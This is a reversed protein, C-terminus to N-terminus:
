GEGREIGLAKKLKVINERAFGLGPDISLAMNYMAIADEYRGLERLNSGISAYDIASAPNIKVASYLAEIAKEYRKTQYFCFGMLNYNAYENPDAKVAMELAAIAEDYRGLDKLCSGMYFYVRSLDEPAPNLALAERFNELAPETRGGGLDCLGQYFRVPASAEEIRDLNLRGREFEGLNVYSAALNFLVDDRPVGPSELALAEEFRYVAGAYDQRTMGIRGLHYAFLGPDSSYAAGETLAAEAQDLNMLSMHCLGEHLLAASRDADTRALEFAMRAHVAGNAHEGAEAFAVALAMSVQRGEETKGNAELNERMSRCSRDICGACAEAPQPGAEFLGEVSELSGLPNGSEWQSFCAYVHGDREDIVLHRRCPGLLASPEAELRELVSEFVHNARLQAVIGEGSLEIAPDIYIRLENAIVAEPALPSEGHFYFSPKALRARFFGVLPLIEDSSVSSRPAIIPLVMLRVESQHEYAEKQFPETIALLREWDDTECQGFGHGCVFPHVHMTPLTEAGLFEAITQVVERARDIQGDASEDVLFVHGRWNLRSLVSDLCRLFRRRDGPGSGPDLRVILIEIPQAGFPAKANV